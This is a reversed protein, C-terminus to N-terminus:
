TDRASPLDEFVSTVVPLFEMAKEQEADLRVKLRPTNDEPQSRRSLLPFLDDDEDSILSPLQETLVELIRGAEDPSIEDAPDLREIEACVVWIRLYVDAIFELPSDLLDTGTPKLGDSQVHYRRRTNM